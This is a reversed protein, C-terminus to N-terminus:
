GSAVDGPKARYFAKLEDCIFKDFMPIYNNPLTLDFKCWEELEEQTVDHDHNDRNAANDKINLAIM